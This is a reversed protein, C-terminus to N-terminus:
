NVIVGIKYKKNELSKEVKNGCVIYHDLGISTVNYKVNGIWEGGNSKITNEFFEIYLNIKGL